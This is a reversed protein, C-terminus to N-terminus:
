VCKISLTESKNIDDYIHDYNLMSQSVYFNYCMFIVTSSHFHFFSLSFFCFVSLTQVLFLCLCLYINFILNQFSTFSQLLKLFNLICNTQLLQSKIKYHNRKKHQPWTPSPIFGAANDVQGWLGEAESVWWMQLWCRGPSGCGEAEWLIDWYPWPPFFKSTQHKWNWPTRPVILISCCGPYVFETWSPGFALRWTSFSM